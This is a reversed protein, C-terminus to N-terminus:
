HREHLMKNNQYDRAIKNQQIKIVLVPCVFPTEHMLNKGLDAWRKNDQLISQLILTVGGEGGKGVVSFRRIFRGPRTIMLHHSGSRSVGPSTQCQGWVIKKGSQRFSHESRPIKSRPCRSTQGISMSHISTFLIFLVVPFVSHVSSLAIIFSLGLEM